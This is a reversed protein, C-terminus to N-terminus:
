GRPKCTRSKFPLTAVLRCGRPGRVTVRGSGAGSLRGSASRSFTEVAGPASMFSFSFGWGSSRRMVTKFTWTRPHWVVPKFFGWAIADKLYQRWYPWDHVGPRQDYSVSAGAARAEPVFDDAQARLEREAVQGFFNDVDDPSVPTGDGVGVFLRTWRLNSVLRLPNHGTAYFGGVDGFVTNYDQGQTNFGAPWEPRQISVPPSFAAASGFYGPLQSAYYMTAEGGMSLGAIAHWRRGARISLKREVLPILERLHYSEWGPSGRRGGNWWDTYWGQGAEPMVVIGPFGRATNLLDGNKQAFWSWYSDGHGHLLYLVPYRRARTFGDPLLVNVPLSRPQAPAGAPVSNFQASAPDVFHSTTHKWTVLRQAGSAPAALALGAVLAVLLLRRM